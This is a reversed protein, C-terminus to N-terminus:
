IYDSNMIMLIITRLKKIIINNVDMINNYIIYLIIITGHHYDDFM